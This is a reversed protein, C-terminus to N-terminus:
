RTRAGAHSAIKDWRAACDRCENIHQWIRRDLPAAMARRVQRALPVVKPLRARDPTPAPTRM